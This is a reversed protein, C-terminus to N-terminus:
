YGLVVVFRQASGFTWTKLFFISYSVITVWGGCKCTQMDRWGFVLARYSKMVFGISTAETAGGTITRRFIRKQTRGDNETIKMQIVDLLLQIAPIAIM